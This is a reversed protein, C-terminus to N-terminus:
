ATTSKALIKKAEPSLKNQKKEEIKKELFTDIKRLLDFPHSHNYNGEFAMEIKTKTLIESLIKKADSILYSPAFLFIQSFNNNDQKKIKELEEKFKKLFKKKINEIRIERVAGVSFTQGKGSSVFFGENEYRPRPIEFESIKEIEGGFASYFIAKQKSTAVLLARKTFFQPLQQSIIM